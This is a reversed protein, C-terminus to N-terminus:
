DVDGDNDLDAYVGGNSFTPMQDVWTDSYNDFKLTGNNRYFYNKIRVEPILKFWDELKVAVGRAMLNKISDLVFVKYDWDSIDRKLGNTIFIDKWKDNDYDVILPAWSWDTQAVGSYYAIESFKGNGNNL